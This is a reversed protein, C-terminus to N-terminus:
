FHSFTTHHAWSLTKLRDALDSKTRYRKSGALFSTKEFFHIKSDAEFTYRSCTGGFFRPFQDCKQTEQFFLADGTLWFNPSQLLCRSVGYDLEVAFDSPTTLWPSWKLAFRSTKNYRLDMKSLTTRSVRHSRRELEKHMRRCTDLARLIWLRLRM